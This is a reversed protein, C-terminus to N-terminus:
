RVVVSRVDCLDERRTFQTFKVSYTGEDTWEIPVSRELVFDDNAGSKLWNGEPDFLIDETMAEVTEGAPNTIWYKLFINRDPYDHLFTIIVKPSAPSSAVYDVDFSLSDTIGWCNDDFELSTIQGGGCASLIVAPIFVILFLNRLNEM